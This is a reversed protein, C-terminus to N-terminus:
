VSESAPPTLHTYSGADPARAYIPVYGALLVDSAPTIRLPAPGGHSVVRTTADEVGSGGAASVVTQGGALPTIPFIGHRQYPLVPVSEPVDLIHPDEASLLVLSGEPAAEDLLIMGHYEHGLIMQDPVWLSGDAHAAGACALLIVFCPIRM